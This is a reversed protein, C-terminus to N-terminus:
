TQREVINDLLFKVADMQAQDSCKVTLSYFANAFDV